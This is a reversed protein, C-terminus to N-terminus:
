EFLEPVVKVLYLSYPSRLPQKRVLVLLFRQGSANVCTGLIGKSSADRDGGMM